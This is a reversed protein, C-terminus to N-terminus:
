KRDRMFEYLSTNTALTKLYSSSGHQSTWLGISRLRQALVCDGKRERDMEFTSDSVEILLAIDPPGPHRHLFASASSKQHLVLVDPEPESTIGQPAPLSIPLQVRIKGPFAESLVTNLLSILYAHPPKQGMKDILDGEILEYRQGAFMEGLRAVEERTWVKRQPQEASRVLTAM